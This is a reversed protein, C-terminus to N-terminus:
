ARQDQIPNDIPLRITFTSGNETSSSLEIRGHHHETIIFYSVSLGLGTGSGPEKTTFFPDFVHRQTAEDMGKGNDSIAMNAFQNDYTLSISMSPKDNTFSKEAIAQAANRLINLLVQQIEASSCVVKASTEPFDTILQIDEFNLGNLQFSSRALELSHEILEPLDAPSHNRSSYRSFELMNNVISSAREGAAQIDDIFKYIGRRELYTDMQKLDLGLAQAEQVNKDIDSSLRRKLNQANQITASLPNNIEHAMGAALEGMSMMKENQIMMTEINVRATVNDTRLVVGMQEGSLIPFATMDFYEANLGEGIQVRESSQAKATSLTKEILPMINVAHEYATELPRGIVQAVTKGTAKEAHTNWHTILLQNNVGIIVSPMANIIAMLSDQSVRLLEETTENKSIGMYLRSNLQRLRDTREVLNQELESKSANLGGIITKTRQRYKVLGWATVLLLLSISLWILDEFRKDITPAAQALAGDAILDSRIALCCLTSLCTKAQM